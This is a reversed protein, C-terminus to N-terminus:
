RAMMPHNSLAAGGGRCAPVNALPTTVILHSQSPLWDLEDSGLFDEEIAQPDDAKSTRM